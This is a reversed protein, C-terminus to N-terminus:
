SSVLMLWIQDRTDSDYEGNLMSTVVSLGPLRFSLCVIRTTIPPSPLFEAVNAPEVVDLGVRDVDEGAVEGVAGGFVGGVGGGVLSAVAEAQLM